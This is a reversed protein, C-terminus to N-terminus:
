NVKDTQSDKGEKDIESAISRLFNAVALHRENSDAEPWASNIAIVLQRDPDIHIMQGYIGLAEFSSGNFIWWGFGYGGGPWLPVQISTATKFWNKPVISEGNIRGDELVFQGFRAFDRLRMQLCCGALEQGTRDLRWTANQEMGYPIWIKSSLYHSLTQHTASSVLVGLLHTEGTSYKFIKGPEAEAPLSRMYSVTANMGPEISDKDFRAIDADPDTYNENWRVGATMTLLHRIKVSDYASGKLDPIYETVYDDVSKIYGDKIAIGVLTSTVSKAVSLSSWLNSESHGLAYRELRIKGNQLVLFGAVKQEKMFDELTKEKEGGPSFAAIPLGQLLKHVNSGNPVEREKKDLHSSNKSLSDTNVTDQALSTSASMLIIVLVIIRLFSSNVPIYM